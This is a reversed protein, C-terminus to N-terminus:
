HTLGQFKVTLPNILDIRQKFFICFVFLFFRLVRINQSKQLRHINGKAHIDKDLWGCLLVHQTINWITEFVPAIQMLVCNTYQINAQQLLQSNRFQISTRHYHRKPSETSYKYTTSFVSLHKCQSLPQINSAKKHQM